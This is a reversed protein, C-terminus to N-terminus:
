KRLICGIQYSPLSVEPFRKKYTRMFLTEPIHRHVFYGYKEYGLDELVWGLIKEQLLFPKKNRIPDKIILCFFGGKKLFKDTKKYMDRVFFEYDGNPYKLNGYSNKDMYGELNSGFPADSTTNGNIIPYPTGNIVLSVQSEYLFDGLLENIDFVSGSFVKHWYTSEQAKCNEDCLEPWELEVGLGFRKNNIAEIMATGSGVTPDLVIDGEKTLKQIAFRYGQYHGEDLHQYDTKPRYKKGARQSYYKDNEIDYIEGLFCMGEPKWHLDGPIQDRCLIEESREINNRYKGM